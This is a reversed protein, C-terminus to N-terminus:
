QGSAALFCSIQYIGNEKLAPAGARLMMSHTVDILGERELGGASRPQFVHLRVACGTRVRQAAVDQLPSGSGGRGGHVHAGSGV